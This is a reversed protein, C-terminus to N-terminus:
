AMVKWRAPLPPYHFTDEAGSAGENCDPSIQYIIFWKKRLLKTYSIYTAAKLVYSCLIDFWLIVQVFIISFKKVMGRKFPPDNSQGWVVVEKAIVM